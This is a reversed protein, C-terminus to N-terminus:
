HKDKVERGSKQKWFVWFIRGPHIHSSLSCICTPHLPNLAVSHGTLPSTIGSCLSCPVLGSPRSSSSPYPLSGSPFCVQLLWLSACGALPVVLCSLAHCPFCSSSWRFHEAASGVCSRRGEAMGPGPSPGPCSSRPLALFSGSTVLHTVGGGRGCGSAVKPLFTSPSSIYDSCAVYKFTPM